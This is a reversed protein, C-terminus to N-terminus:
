LSAAYKEMAAIRESVTPHSYHYASYLPHPTLNSLNDKSLQLLANKLGAASGTAKVAFRDAEYEYKRSLKSRLPALFFTFPGSCFSFLILAAHYSSASFGFAQYFPTYPLLLSIVWFGASLGLLSYLMGKKIHNKKEHGIEHALVGLLEQRGSKEVLTDFLVIRKTKGLGTFYANSHRSRKSGDMVLIGSTKFGVKEALALIQDELESDELPSFKNFLPAIFTPYILVMLLQFVAFLCFAYVWWNQGASDMFWFLAYLLPTLFLASLFLGKIADTIFLKWTMRNFGFREEIVFISYLSFPLSSLSFILSLAYIYVIGHTYTGLQWKAIFTDISSLAGSLIILLLFFSSFLSSIMGFRNKVLTYSVSKEYTAPDITDRFVPPIVDRNKKVYQRNLFELFTEWCFEISFLVLYLTLIQTGTM